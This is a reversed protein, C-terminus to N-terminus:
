RGCVEPKGAALALRLFDIAAKAARALVIDPGGGLLHESREVGAASALAIDITARGEPGPRATGNDHQVRWTRGSGAPSFHCGLSRRM